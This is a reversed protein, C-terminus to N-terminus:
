SGSGGPKHEFPLAMFRVQEPEVLYLVGNPGRMPFPNGTYKESLRDMVELAAEGTRTEVIRGRVNASRYPNAHDTVSLAIRPDRELNRAKRSGSQTFFAIREGEIGAWVAVSHPSGDPMLTAVHVYNPGELLDRVEGPLPAM